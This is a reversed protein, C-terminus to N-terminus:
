YPNVVMNKTANWGPISIWKIVSARNLHLGNTLLVKWNKSCIRTLRLDQSQSLQEVCEREQNEILGTYSQCYVEMGTQFREWVPVPVPNGQMQSWANQGIYKRQQPIIEHSPHNWKNELTILLNGGFIAIQAVNTKTVVLSGKGVNGGTHRNRSELWIKHPKGRKWFASSLKSNPTHRGQQCM